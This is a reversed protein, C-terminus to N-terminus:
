LQEFLETIKYYTEPKLDLPRSNIDLDQIKNIKEQSLIKKISKNIMKRKSSFFINTIKELNKINKIRYVNEKKPKFHIVISTIKPKPFFSNNSVFFKKFVNLKLNSLISLRGYGSSKFKGIIKEGLEKQFMFIFDNIQPPWKKFRLIRVLIQSSINYPLNGFIIDNNKSIKEIDFKLIDANYILINKEASYKKKLSKYLNYDKEILCLSKPKKKLIENTLAGKGPGIEIVNKNYIRVLSVIKKIINKDILYNQGLSKKPFIM